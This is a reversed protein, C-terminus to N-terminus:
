FVYKLLLNIITLINAYNKFAHVPARGTLGNAMFLRIPTTQPNFTPPNTPLNTDTPQAFPFAKKDKRCLKEPIIYFASPRSFGYAKYTTRM